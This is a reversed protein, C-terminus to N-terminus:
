RTPFGTAATPRRKRSMASMSCRSPRCCASRSSCGGSTRAASRWGPPPRGERLEALCRNMLALTEKAEKDAGKAKKEIAVVRRELSELDALM